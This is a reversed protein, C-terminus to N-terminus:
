SSVLTVLLLVLLLLLLRGLFGVVVIRFLFRAVILLPSAQASLIVLASKGKLNQRILPCCNFGDGVNSPLESSPMAVTNAM